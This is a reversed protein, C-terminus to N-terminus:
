AFRGSGPVAPGSPPTYSTKKSGGDEPPKPFKGGLLERWLNGSVNRDEEDFAKRAIKAAENVQGYFKKFDEVSIRKFVDHDAVGYDPLIPKQGLLVSVHYKSVIAEMTLTIGEAVSGIADPCCEGILRELPFGKPHKPEEHKELRWWKIAKVVNVFHGSTRNNKDRTWRIQELPHTSEWKGMDRDPIRLPETKWEPDTLAKAMIARADFGQRSDLALWSSNFRWDRVAELSDDGIVSASKLIMEEVESPASTLVLDLDVYSLEIGVSRGQARWKGKYHKDLFPVLLEQARAPTYDAESLNTVVIIDVDSRKGSNPRVATSRRYSGQLFDSIIVSKLTEDANLEKRLTTHGKQLDAQQGDTPRIEKLFENFDTSLDM